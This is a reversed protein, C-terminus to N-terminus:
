FTVNVNAYYFSGNFGFQNANRTYPTQGDFFSSYNSYVKDPYVNGINNCGVTINMKPTLNYAISLDVLTKAGFIQTRHFGGAPKEWAQVNGFYSLRANTNWKGAQYGVSVLIKTRPQGTEILSRSITDIMLVNYIAGNTLSDPTAKVKQITTVSNTLAISTNLIHNNDFMYKNSVVLDVGTTRTSLHNTFFSIEQVGPFRTRLAPISAVPLAESIIIRNAIDIQYADLTFLTESYETGVANKAGALKATVGANLNWSIEAQPAGIGIQALRPDDSRLQKTQRIQGAQVASTTVSNFIQQLSPARFGKNISGRLSFNETLKYRGAMKGTSNNGFDSYREVRVATTLLWKNTPECEIDLYGGMNSRRADVRDDAAIGPRGSSGPAKGQATALAGVAYSEPDGEVLQFADVRHQMGMAINWDKLDFLEKFAKSFNMETTRQGFASRGVYFDKPSAGGLSPNSTNKAWLDLYNYGYGTSFDMNWGEKTKRQLGVVGSYDLTAGPLSPAYGNPHIALNSNANTPQATRFFAGAQIQKQSGGGFGYFSWEDDIPYGMNVFGQYALTQNSGYQSVKFNSLGTGNTSSWIGTVARAADEAAWTASAATYIRGRYNESRDTGESFQYHLTANLYSGEKGLGIGYNVAALYSAGDGEGTVGYQSKFSGQNISKKLGINVIGAIADSGYQAAAGDRLIEIRETALSPITNMDTVVTGKGVTVNLNLASFQHRRKGNVLVLVQDPSLGRLTAPDAYNAVGNIGYKASNFSPSTFQVMQALDVQGTLQLDKASLVDVPAPRSVDTRPKNSRTGVVTVEGIDTATSELVVTMPSMDATVPVERTKFGIYTFVLVDGTNANLTYKGDLDTLTGKTTGKISVSVGILSEGKADTVKGTVDAVNVLTTKYFPAGYAFMPLSVVGLSMLLALIFRPKM